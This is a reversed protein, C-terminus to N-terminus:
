LYLQPTSICIYDPFAPLSGLDNELRILGYRKDVERFGAFKYTVYMMRNRETSLFEATLKVGASQALKRIYNIMITGVGTSMVRCSMLLLKINWCDASCEVLALGIKGYCGYRDELSGVLLLHEDSQRFNDLEEYSYTYGTSNLQHTRVTLEEARKLDEAQAQEITFHMRLTALFEEKPGVWEDEMQKRKIDSSYMFRRAKSDETIFRPMMEPMELMHDLHAADLCMIMPLTHTVEDREFAQDDVFAISDLGINLSTAITEIGKVKTSWSIQPYLFYELVGFEELKATAYFRDNKSAVSHLIGREDLAKIIRCVEPRLEVNDGELLIGKWLTNDLDWVVCKISSKRAPAAM